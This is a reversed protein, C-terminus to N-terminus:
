KAQKIEVVFEKGDDTLIIFANQEKDDYTVHKIDKIDDMETFVFESIQVLIKECDNMKYGRENTELTAVKYM